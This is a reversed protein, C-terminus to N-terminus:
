ETHAPSCSSPDGLLEGAQNPEAPREGAELDLGEDTVHAITASAREDAAAGEDNSSGEGESERDDQDAVESADAM